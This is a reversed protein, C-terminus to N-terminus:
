IYTYMRCRLRCVIDKGRYRSLRVINRVVSEEEEEEESEIKDEDVEEIEDELEIDLDFYNSEEVLKFVRVIFFFVMFNIYLIFM